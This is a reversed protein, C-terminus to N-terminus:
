MCEYMSRVLLQLVRNYELILEMKEDENISKIFEKEEETLELMNRINHIVKRFAASLHANKEKNENNENNDM